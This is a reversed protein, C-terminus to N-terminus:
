KKSNLDAPYLMDMFLSFSNSIKSITFQQNITDFLDHNAFYVGNTETSILILNGFSTRSIPIYKSPIYEDDLMDEYEFAVENLSFFYEVDTCQRHIKGTIPDSESFDPTFTIKVPYGGNNKLLFEKYDDPLIVGVNEEFAKIDQISITSGIKRLDLKKM